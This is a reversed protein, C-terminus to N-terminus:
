GGDVCAGLVVVVEREARLLAGTSTEALVVISQTTAVRIRTAVAARGARPTLHFSAVQPVPNKEALLHIARVHDAASMPSDVTIAVDVSNGNESLTPMDITVGADRPTRGALLARLVAEFAGADSAQALAPAPLLPLAALAGAGALFARRAAALAPETACHPCTPSSM